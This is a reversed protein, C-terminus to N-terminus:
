PEEKEIYNWLGWSSNSNNGSELINGKKFDFDDLEEFILWGILCTAIVNFITITVEIFKNSVRRFAKLTWYFQASIFFLGLILIFCFNSWHESLEPDMEHYGTLIYRSIKCCLITGISFYGIIYGYCLPRIFRFPFGDPYLYCCDVRFLADYPTLLPKQTLVTMREISQGQLYRSPRLIVNAEIFKLCLYTLLLFIAM